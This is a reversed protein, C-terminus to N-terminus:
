RPICDYNEKSLREDVIHAADERWRNRVINSVLMGLTATDEQYLAVLRVIQAGFRSTDAIYHAVYDAARPLDTCQMRLLGIERDIEVDREDELRDYRLEPHRRELRDRLTEQEDLPCEDYYTDPYSM